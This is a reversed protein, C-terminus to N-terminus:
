VTVGEKKGSELRAKIRAALNQRRFPLGTYQTISEARVGLGRLVSSFQGLYNLEPVIVLEKSRLDDLLAPPIPNLYMTYRWGVNVGQRQLAEYAERTSGKSGGWPMIVISADDDESEYTGDELLKLKAFRRETMEVHRSPMHTTDGMPDHESANAVYAGPGGPLPMDSVGAGEYRLYGNQGKYVRRTEVTIKSLDPKPINQRREALMMESLLVVPGQYREAWNVACVAAYFCEEVSGPAIVPIRVDGHSPNLAALLDSQETKTPLGTAPGGRQVDVVVLPIEAMWALGMGESMLSFGPGATSTMARKGAYGAGVIANISEIESSAQYVFKGEGVLNQEMFVLITTAPSIPYGVFVDLGAAVAGLSIADNGRVNIQPVNSPTPPELEGLSFTSKAAEDRGLGLAQINSSIIQEDDDRGRSFRAKVFDTLYNEPWTVLHALAGLVVMNAARLNGTSRGLEDFPIGLVSPDDDISFAASDYVVVGGDRVEGRHTEYANENFAVLVDLQDGSTLVQDTSIRAQAWTPGGVIQSPFTVFTMTFYGVQSAAQALAEAATVMGQGGEGAFRVVFDRHQEM